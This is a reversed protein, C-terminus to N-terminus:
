LVTTNLVIMFLIKACALIDIHYFRKELDISNRVFLGCDRDKAHRKLKEVRLYCFTHFFIEIFFLMANTSFFKNANTSKKIESILQTLRLIQSVLITLLCRKKYDGHLMMSAGEMVSGAVVQILLSSDVQQRVKL